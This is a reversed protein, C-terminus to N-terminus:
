LYIFLIILILKDKYAICKRPTGVVLPLEVPRRKNIIIKIVIDRQKWKYCIFDQHLCNQIAKFHTRSWFIDLGYGNWPPKNNQVGLGWSIGTKTWFHWFNQTELGGGGGPIELLRGLALYPEKGPCFGNETTSNINTRNLNIEYM